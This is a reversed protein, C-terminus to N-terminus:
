RGFLYEGVYPQRENEDSQSLGYVNVISSMGSCTRGALMMPCNKPQGEKITFVLKNGVKEVIVEPKPNGHVALYKVEARVTKSGDYAYSLVGGVVEARDVDNINEPLAITETKTLIQLDRQVTNGLQVASIAVGATAFAGLCVMVLMSIGVSRPMRWKFASASLLGFLIVLAIGGVFLSVLMGMAWPQAQFDSMWSVVDYGVFGGVLVGIMIGATALLGLVGLFVRGVKSARAPASTKDNEVSDKLAGLTVPKGAMTLKDAATRAPPTIIWFIIYVLLLTGASILFFAVAILRVILVDLKFYEAMGACVGGLIANDTDRMFRKKPKEAEESAEIQRNNDDNDAFEKPEGLQEKLSDVDDSSIVQDALVGREALLEVMRSEIERQVDEDADMNKAIAQLYKELDKKAEIEVNYPTKALHIRTIENM